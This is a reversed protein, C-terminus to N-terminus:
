RGAVGYGILWLGGLLVPAAFLMADMRDLVGGHGPLVGGSDKVGFSRKFLSEVLDGIQAALATATGVLLLPLHVHQLQCYSWVATAIVGTALGAAAGEWSKKPSVVPAMKHRGFASGAYLAATDGLWVIACLLFALWPDLRQLWYMSAIPAAFYPIGFALVGLTPLVATLPTRAFLVASGLGVGLVTVLALAIRGAAGNGSPPAQLAFALAAAVLPVLVVLLQLPADPFSPRVLRVFEVAGWTILFACLAFFWMGPLRFIALVALPVAIAATLLRTM